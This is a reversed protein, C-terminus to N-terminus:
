ILPGGLIYLSSQGKDQGGKQATLALFFCVTTTPSSRRMYLPTLAPGGYGVTEIVLGQPGGTCIQSLQCLHVYDESCGQLGWCHPLFSVSICSPGEKIPHVATQTFFDLYLQQCSIYISFPLTSTPSSPLSYTVNIPTYFGDRLAQKRASFILILKKQLNYIFM